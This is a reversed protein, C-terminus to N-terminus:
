KTKFLSEYMVDPTEAGKLLDLYSSAVRSIAADQANDLTVKGNKILKEWGPLVAIFPVPNNTHGGHTMNEINGHDATILTAIGNERATDIVRALVRDIYNLTKIAMNYKGTHGIMDPNAFNVLMSKSKKQNMWSLVIDRITDVEMQPTLDKGRSSAPFFYSTDSHTRDNKGDLFHLMHQRKETESGIWPNFGQDNLTQPLTISHVEAPFAVPLHYSSDYEAMCVFNLDQLREQGELFPASCEKQALAETLQKARDSRYNVLIVGDGNSIPKFGDLIVPPMSKELWKNPEKDSYAHIRDYIDFFSETKFDSKGHVLMNYAVETMDWKRARDMPYTMGIFSAIPSYGAGKLVQNTKKVYEPASGEAVDRGDLFAHVKVDKVRETAAMKILENLHKTSSHVYGDSLLAMLHLTSNRDKVHQMVNLFAKNKYFTCDEISKDIAMLEQLIRRGAGINNHGVESSGALNDPLGVYTGSAHLTRYLTDGYSNNILSKYFPMRAVNFPNKIGGEKAGFGDLIILLEKNFEKPVAQFAPSVPQKPRSNQKNFGFVSNISQIKM